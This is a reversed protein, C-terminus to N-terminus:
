RELRECDTDKPGVFGAEGCTGAGTRQLKGESSTSAAKSQTFEYLFILIVSSLSRKKEM